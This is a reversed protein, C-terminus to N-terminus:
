LALINLQFVRKSKESLPAGHACIKFRNNSIHMVNCSVWLPVMHENILHFVLENHLLKVVVHVNIRVIEFGLEKLAFGCKTDNQNEKTSPCFRVTKIKM